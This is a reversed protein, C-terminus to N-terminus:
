LISYRIRIDFALENTRVTKSGDANHHCELLLEKNIVHGISTFVFEPNNKSMEHMRELKTEMIEVRHVSLLEKFINYYTTASFKDWEEVERRGELTM